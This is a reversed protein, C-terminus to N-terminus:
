GYNLWRTQRTEKQKVGWMIRRMLLETSSTLTVKDGLTLNTLSM